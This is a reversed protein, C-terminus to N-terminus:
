VGFDSSKNEIKNNKAMLGLFIWFLFVVSVVSINFFAQIAYGSIACFIPLNFDGLFVRKSFKHLVVIYLFYLYAFLSPIGSSVAIDLYENHSKDIFRYDGFLQLVDEKFRGGFLLELNSIGFGFIPREKILEIVRAWIFWRGSGTANIDPANMIVKSFDTFIMFFRSFPSSFSTATFLLIVGVTVVMFIWFQKSLLKEKLLYSRVLFFIIIGFIAGVWPGRSMTAILCFLLTSYSILGFIRKKILWFHLTFPIMLVLYSGFFNPNGITGFPIFADRSIEIKFIDIGFNQLIGFASIMTASILMYKFVKSGIPMSIKAAFFMFVYMITTVFGDLRLSNGTIALKPDIAFFISIFLILLYILIAKTPLDFIFIERFNKRTLWIQLIFLLSCVLIVVHKPFYYYDVITQNPLFILPTVVLNFITIFSAIKNTKLPIVRWLNM